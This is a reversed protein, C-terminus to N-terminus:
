LTFARAFQMNKTKKSDDARGNVFIWGPAASGTSGEDTKAPHFKICFSLAHFNPNTDYHQLRDFKM